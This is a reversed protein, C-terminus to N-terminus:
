GEDESQLRMVNGKIGREECYRLVSETDQKDWTDLISCWTLKKLEKLEGLGSILADGTLSPEPASLSVLGAPLHQFSEVSIPFGALVLEELDPCLTKMHILLGDSVNGIASLRGDDEVVLLKLSKGVIRLADCIGAPGLLAINALELKTLPVRLANLAACLQHPPILNGDIRLHRLKSPAPSDTYPYYESSQSGGMFSLGRLELYELSDWTSFQGIWLAPDPNPM